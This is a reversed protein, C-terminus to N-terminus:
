TIIVLMCLILFVIIKKLKVLMFKPLNFILKNHFNQMSLTLIKVM